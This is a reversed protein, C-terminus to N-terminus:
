LIDEWDGSLWKSYSQKLSKLQCLSLTSAYPALYPSAQSDGFASVGRHWSTCARGKLHHRNFRYVPPRTIALLDVHTM